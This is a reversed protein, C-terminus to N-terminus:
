TRKRRSNRTSKRIQWRSPQFINMLMFYDAHFDKELQINFAHHTLSNHVLMPPHTFWFHLLKFFELNFHSNMKLLLSSFLLLLFKLLLFRQCICTEFLSFYFNFSTSPELSLKQLNKPFKEPIVKPSTLYFIYFM